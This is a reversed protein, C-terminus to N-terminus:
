TVILSRLEELFASYYAKHYHLPNPGWIHQADAMIPVEKISIVQCPIARRFEAELARIRINGVFYGVQRRSAYPQIYGDEDLYYEAWRAANLIVQCSPLNDKLFTSLFELARVFAQMYRSEDSVPNLTKKAACVAKFSSKRLLYSNTVLGGEFEYVGRRSDLLLDVILLDPKLPVLSALYSKDFDRGLKLKAEPSVDPGFDAPIPVPKTNLTILATQQSIAVQQVPLRNRPDQFHYWDESACTGLVAYTKM